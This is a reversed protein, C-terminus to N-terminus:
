GRDRYLFTVIQARTCAADPSFATASTGNTIKNEVAWLVAPAYYAGSTVDRFPNADRTQEEGELRWLFTVTQARTVTANPAFHKADVGATIGNELAWLVAKYYYQDKTVDAFPNSAAGPEPSDVARWLFTVMQARTCSVNPGFESASIGKTVNRKVAWDVAPAYYADSPVDRFTTKGAGGDDPKPTVPAPTVPAPTVPAPTVPAPTVPAPTVPTPTVPTPTVPTPEEPTPTVPTPKEPTPEDYKSTDFFHVKYVVPFSMVGDVVVTFTQDPAYRNNIEDAAILGGKPRFVITDPVGSSQIVEFDGDAEKASFHWFRSDSDRSLTVSVGDPDVDADVSLSWPANLDMFNSPMHEAPWAVLKAKTGTQSRDTVMMSTACVDEGSLSYIPVCGFATKQMAPNLVWSRGRCSDSALTGMWRTMISSFFNLTDVDLLCNAAGKSALNYLEEGMGTPKGQRGGTIATLLAAAQAMDADENSLEVKPLGAIYRVCNVIELAQERSEYSLIGASYPAHDPDPDLQYTESGFAVYNANQIYKAIERESHVTVDLSTSTAFVSAPMLSLCLLLALILCLSRKRM